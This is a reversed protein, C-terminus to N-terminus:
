FQSRYIQGLNVNEVVLNRLKWAGDRGKAMIYVVEYPDSSDDYVLQWLTARGDDVQSRKEDIEMRSGGFALLGRGYTRVLGVRMTETFRELQGRLSEQGAEDLSRYREGSAYRGMVGRAFFGFDIVPDLIEQVSNYYRDPDEDVYGRADEILAMVRETTSELVERATAEAEAGQEDLATVALPLLLLLPAACRLLSRLLRQSNM